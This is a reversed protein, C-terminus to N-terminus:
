VRRISSLLPLKSRAKGWGGNWSIMIDKSSVEVVGLFLWIVGGPAIKAM